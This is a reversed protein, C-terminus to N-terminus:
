PYHKLNGAITFATRRLGDVPRARRFTLLYFLIVFDNLPLQIAAQFVASNKIRCESFTSHKFPITSTVGISNLYTHKIIEILIYSRVYCLYFESVVSLVPHGLPAYYYYCYFVCFLDLGWRPPMYLNIPQVSRCFKMKIKKCAM